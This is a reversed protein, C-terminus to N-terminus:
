GNSSAAPTLHRATEERLSEPTFPKALYGDAGLKLGRERDRESSQTSILLVPVGRHQESKRIFSLLELGNIDPMNIDTIMLDIHTKDLYSLAEIGNNATIVSHNIRQLMLSLLRNTVPEDDVVLIKAM